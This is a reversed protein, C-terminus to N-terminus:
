IGIRELVRKSAQGDDLYNYTNCFSQYRQAYETQIADINLIDNLLEEETYAIPGPLESLDIYFGRAENQYNELDYMYFLIPRKLNAYDFFVSSYDTILLDSVVYLHNIDDYKSFNFIFGEYDEFKFSNSILYHTRFLIVYEDKLKSYMDDFDINLDYTYGKGAVHSADRWTPAYLIIKKDKPIGMEDKLRAIDSEDANHLFDNRPYGEEVIINEKGLVKLDFSSMFKETSFRSPSLMFDYRRTDRDYKDQLEKVTHVTSTGKVDLDHGLRKLPTGHWTQIHVQKKKKIIDEPLRANRISYKAKSYYKYYSPSKYKVFLTQENPSAKMIEGSGEKVKRFAWVFTFDKYEPNKVMEEYLAKPSCSYGRGWFSEFIITKDEIKYPLFFRLIYRLKSFNRKSFNAIKRFAMSRKSIREVRRRIGKQVRRKYKNARKIRKRLLRRARRIARRAFSNNGSGNKKSIEETDM